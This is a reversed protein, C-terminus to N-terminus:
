ALTSIVAGWWSVLPYSFLIALTLLPDRGYVQVAAGLGAVFLLSLVAFIPALGTFQALWRVVLTLLMSLPPMHMIGIGNVYDRLALRGMESTFADFGLLDRGPDPGDVALVVKFFDSFLERATPFM